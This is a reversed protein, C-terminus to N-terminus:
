FNIIVNNGKNGLVTVKRIKKQSYGNLLISQLYAKLRVDTDQKIFDPLSLSPLVEKKHKHDFSVTNLAVAIIFSM